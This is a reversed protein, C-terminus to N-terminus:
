PNCTQKAHHREEAIRLEAVMCLTVFLEESLCSNRGLQGGFDRQFTNLQVAADGDLVHPSMGHVHGRLVVVEAPVVFDIDITVDVVHLPVVVPVVAGSLVIVISFQTIGIGNPSVGVVVGSAEHGQRIFTTSPDFAFRDSTTQVGHVIDGPVVVVHTHQTDLESADIFDGEGDVVGEATLGSQDIVVVVMVTQFGDGDSNVEVAVDIKDGGGVTLLWRVEPFEVLLIHIELVGDVETFEGEFAFAPRCSLDLGHREVVVGAGEVPPSTFLVVVEVGVAAEELHVFLSGFEVGDGFFHGGFDGTQEEFEVVAGVYHVQNLASTAVEEDVVGLAISRVGGEIRAFVNGDGANGVSALVDGAHGDVLRAVVGHDNGRGEVGGGALAGEHHGGVVHVNNGSPSTVNVVDGVGPSGGSHGVEVDAAGGGGLATVGHGHGVLAVDGTVNQDVEVSGASATGHRHFGEGGVLVVLSLERHGVAVDGHVAGVLGDFEFLKGINALELGRASRLEVDGGGVVSAIDEFHLLGAGGAPAAVGGSVHFIAVLEINSTGPGVAHVDGVGVAGELGSGLGELDKCSGLANGDSAVLVAAIAVADHQGSDTSGGIHGEVTGKLPLLAVSHHSGGVLRLILLLGDGGGVSTHVRHGVSGVGVAVSREALEGRFRVHNVHGGQRVLRQDVKEVGLVRDAVVAAHGDSPIM